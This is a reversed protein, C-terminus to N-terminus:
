APVRGISSCGRPLAACSELQQEHNTRAADKRPPTKEAYMDTAIKIVLRDVFPRLVSRLCDICLYHPLVGFRTGCLQKDARSRM